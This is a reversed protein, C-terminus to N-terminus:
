EKDIKEASKWAMDFLSRMTDAIVQSEIVGGGIKGIFVGIAVRDRYVTMGSASKYLGPPLYRREVYKDKMALLEKKLTESKTSFLTKAHIGKAVRQDTYTLEGGKGFVAELHDTPTYNYWVDGSRSYMVMEQRIARLGNIGSFYRVSPRGGAAKMLIQLEPLILELDHQKEDIVEREKELLRMLQRPAEASYLTKKGDKYHTVLGAKQLSELVVYTTARVVRAKRAIAQVPAPGLQLCTLYVAAEKEKLGLSNLEKEFVM